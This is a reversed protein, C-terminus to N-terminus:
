ASHSPVKYPNVFFLSLSTIFAAERVPGTGVLPTRIYFRAFLIVCICFYGLHGACKLFLAALGPGLTPQAFYRFQWKSPLKQTNIVKFHLILKVLPM